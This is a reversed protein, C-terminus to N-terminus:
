AVGTGAIAEMRFGGGNEMDILTGLPKSAARVKPGQLHAQQAAEDAYVELVTWRNPEEAHRYWAHVLTGPEEEVVAAVMAGVVAEVEAAPADAMAFEALGVLKSMPM